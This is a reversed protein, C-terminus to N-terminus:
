MLYRYDLWEFRDNFFKKLNSKDEKLANVYDAYLPLMNKKYNDISFDKGYLKEFKLHFKKGNIIDENSKKSKHHLDGQIIQLYCSNNNPLLLSSASSVTNQYFYDSAELNINNRRSLLYESSFKWPSKNKFIKSSIMNASKKLYPFFYDGKSPNQFGSNILYNDYSIDSWNPIPLNDKLGKSDKKPELAWYFSDNFGDFSIVINPKYHTLESIMLQTQRYSYSGGAGFNFVKITRNPFDKEFKKELQSSITAENNSSGSGAMSSGGLLFIKFADKNKLDEICKDNEFVINSKNSIYGCKNIKLPGFNTNPRYRDQVLPSFGGMNSSNLTKNNVLKYLM